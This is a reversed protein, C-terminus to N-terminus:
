KSPSYYGFSYIKMMMIRYWYKGRKNKPTIKELIFVEPKSSKIPALHCFNIEHFSLVKLNPYTYGQGINMSIQQFIYNIRYMLFYRVQGQNKPLLTYFISLLLDRHKSTERFDSGIALCEKTM